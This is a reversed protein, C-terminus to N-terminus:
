DFKNSPICKPQPNDSSNVSKKSVWSINMDATKLLWHILSPIGPKKIQQNSIQGIHIHLSSLHSSTPDSSLLSTFRASPSILKGGEMSVPYVFPWHM